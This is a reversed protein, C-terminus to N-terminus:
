VEPRIKSYTEVLGYPTRTKDPIGWARHFDYFNRYQKWPSWTSLRLQNFLLQYGQAYPTASLYILPKGRTLKFVDKWIKGVKPLASLYSHSEDLIILDYNDKLKCAQHYNTVTYQKEHEYEDLTEDWGSLAKKKTLILIKKAKSFEAILISALTKGTREEAAIYVLGYKRLIEYAQNAIDIQHQYPTM